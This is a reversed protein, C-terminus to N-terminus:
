EAMIVLPSMIIRANPFSAFLLRLGVVNERSVCFHSHCSIYVGVIFDVEGEEGSLGAAAVFLGLEFVWGVTELLALVGESGDGPEGADEEGELDLLIAIDVDTGMVINARAEAAANITKRRRCWLRLSCPSLLRTERSRSREWDNSSFWM